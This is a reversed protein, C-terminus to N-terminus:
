RKAAAAQEAQLQKLYAAEGQEVFRQYGASDIFPNPSEGAKLRKLKEMMGFQNPHSALFVDAKLGKLVAFPGLSTRSSLRTCKTKSCRAAPIIRTAGAIVVCLARGNDHATDDV